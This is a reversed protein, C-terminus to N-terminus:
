LRQISFIIEKVANRLDPEIEIRRKIMQVHHLVTAFTKGFVYSIASLPERKHTRAIYMAVQRATVVPLSRDFSMIEERTIGYFACAAQIIRNYMEKQVLRSAGHSRGRDSQEVVDEIKMEWDGKAM